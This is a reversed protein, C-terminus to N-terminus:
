WMGERKSALYSSIPKLHNSVLHSILQVKNSLANTCTVLKPHVTLIHHVYMHVYTCPGQSGDCQPIEILIVLYRTPYGRNLAVSSFRDPISVVPQPVCIYPCAHEVVARVHM